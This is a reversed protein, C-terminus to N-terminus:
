LRTRTAAVAERYAALGVAGCSAVVTAKGALLDLAVVHATGDEAIGWIADAGLGSAAVALNKARCEAVAHAPRRGLHRPCAEVFADPEGDPGIALCCGCTDLTVIAM